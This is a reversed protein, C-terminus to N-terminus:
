AYRATPSNNACREHYEKLCDCAIQAGSIVEKTRFEVSRRGAISNQELRVTNVAWVSNLSLFETFFNTTAQRQAKSTHREGHSALDRIAFISAANKGQFIDPITGQLFLVGFCEVHEEGLGHYRDIDIATDLRFALKEGADFRGIIVGGLDGALVPGDLNIAVRGYHDTDKADFTCIFALGEGMALAEDIGPDFVAPTPVTHGSGAGQNGGLFGGVLPRGGPLAM